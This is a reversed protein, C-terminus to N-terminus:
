HAIDFFLTPDSFQNPIGFYDYPIFRRHSFPLRYLCVITCELVNYTNTEWKTPLYRNHSTVESLYQRNNFITSELRRIDGRQDKVLFIRNVM